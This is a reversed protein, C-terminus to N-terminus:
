KVRKYTLVGVGKDNFGQPRQVDTSKVVHATRLTEGEIQYIFLLTKGQNPGNAPFYDLHSPKRAPDTHYVGRITRGMGYDLTYTEGGYTWVYEAPFKAKMGDNEIEILRWTGVLPDVITKDDYEKPSDSGFLPLVLLVAFLLPLRRM